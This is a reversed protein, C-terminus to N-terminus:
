RRGAESVMAALLAAGARVLDDLALFGRAGPRVLPVHVFAVLPGRPKAAAELARWCLYNCLYRGADRSLAASCRTRPLAALLRGCHPGFALTAPGGAAIMRGGLRGEADPLLRSVANRARTEVRLHKTRTALGFMLVADPRHRVLLQPLERDVATYSTRFVHGVRQVNALAPRRLALLRRVLAGTPNFPAGPFPGFGTLLITLPRAPSAM